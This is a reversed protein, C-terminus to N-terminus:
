GGMKGPSLSLGELPIEDRWQAILEKYAKGSDRINRNLDYLGIPDVHGNDERLGTDWDVQDLLSYWTFGMVPVSNRKLERLEAWEKWLWDSAPEGGGRNNTETLMIPLRYREFYQKALISYGFISGAPQLSGGSDIWHENTKYYDTGM